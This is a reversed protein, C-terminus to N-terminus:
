FSALVMGITVQQERTQELLSSQQQEYEDLFLCILVNCLLKRSWEKGHLIENLVLCESSISYMQEWKYWGGEGSEMMQKRGDLHLGGYLMETGVGLPTLCGAETERMVVLCQDCSSTFRLQKM